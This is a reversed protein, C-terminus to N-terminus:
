CGYNFAKYLRETGNGKTKVVPLMKPEKAFLITLNNSPTRRM